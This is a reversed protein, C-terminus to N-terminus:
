PMIVIPSLLPCSCACTSPLLQLCPSSRFFSFFSFVTTLSSVLKYKYVDLLHVGTGDTWSSVVVATCRCRPSQTRAAWGLGCLGQTAPM